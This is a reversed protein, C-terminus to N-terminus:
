RDTSRAPAGATVRPSILDIIPGAVEARSLEAVAAYPRNRIIRKATAPGIGRLTELEKQTASNLNVRAPAVYRGSEAVTAPVAGEAKFPSEAPAKDSACATILVGALVVATRTCGRKLM